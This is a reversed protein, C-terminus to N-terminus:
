VVVASSETAVVETTTETEGVVLEVKKTRDRVVHNDFKYVIEKQVVTGDAKTIMIPNKDKDRIPVAIPNELLKITGIYPILKGIKGKGKYETVFFKNAVGLFSDDTAAKRITKSITSFGKVAAQKPKKALYKGKASEGEKGCKFHRKGDVTITESKESEEKKESKSDVAKKGRTKKVETTETEKKARPKTAKKPADVKPEDTSKAKSKAPAKTKTETVTPQETTVAKTKKSKPKAEVLVYVPKTEVPVDVKAKGGKKPKTEVPKTEVDVPKTEVEVLKVEVPKTKTKVVKKTKEETPCNDVVKPTSENQPQVSDVVAKAKVSKKQEVPAPTLPTTAVTTSKTNKKGSM